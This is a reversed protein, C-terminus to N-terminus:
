LGRKELEAKLMLRATNLRSRVTGIPIQLVESAQEYSKGELACLVLIERFKPKLEALAARFFSLREDQPQEEKHLDHKTLDLTETMKSQKFKKSSFYTSAQNLAIRTLWTSFRAQSRFAKLNVFARLFSEQALDKAIEKDGVQRLMMSFVMDQYRLVLKKFEDREGALVRRIIASEHEQISRQEQELKSDAVLESM